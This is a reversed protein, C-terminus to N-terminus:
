RNIDNEQTSVKPPSDITKSQPSRSPQQPQPRMVEIPDRGRNLIRQATDRNLILISIRRNAPAGTESGPLRMTAAAGVVRLVKDPIMGGDVLARRSANARDTSLEWNSYYAEGSAYPLDDTHGILMIRNPITNLLPAVKELLKRMYPEISESGLEFMPRDETDVIQLRLGRETIDVRLQSKAKQLVPDNNIEKILKQKLELLREKNHNWEPAPKDRPRLANPKRVAEPITLSVAGDTHIPNDGGGPILSKSTSAQDGGAMAVVLPTRFYQSIQAVQAPNLDALLWMVLFFAMLATMFDAYAIKWMGHPKHRSTKKRRVVIPRKSNDSM